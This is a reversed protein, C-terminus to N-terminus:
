DFQSKLTVITLAAMSVRSRRTYGHSLNMSLDAICVRFARNNASPRSQERLPYSELRTHLTSAYDIPRELVSGGSRAVKEKVAVASRDNSRLSSFPAFSVNSFAEFRDFPTTPTSEENVKLLWNIENRGRYTRLRTCGSSLRFNSDLRGGNRVGAPAVHPIFISVRDSRAM